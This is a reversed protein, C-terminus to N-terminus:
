HTSAGGSGLGAIAQDVMARDAEADHRQAILAAAAAAAASAAKARVEAVAAREAAGIKDEAM